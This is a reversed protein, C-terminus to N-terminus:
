GGPILKILDAGFLVVAVLLVFGCHFAVTSAAQMAEVYRIQCESIPKMDRIGLNILSAPLDAGPRPRQRANDYDISDKM